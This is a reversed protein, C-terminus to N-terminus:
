LFYNHRECLLIADKVETAIAGTKTKVRTSTIWLQM